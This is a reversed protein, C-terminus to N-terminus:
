VMDSLLQQLYRVCYRGKGYNQVMRAQRFNGTWRAPVAPSIDSLKAGKRAEYGLVRGLRVMMESMEEHLFAKPARPEHKRAKKAGSVPRGELRRKVLWVQYGASSRKIGYKNAVDKVVETYRKGKELREEIFAARDQESM